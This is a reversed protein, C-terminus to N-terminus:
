TTTVSAKSRPSSPSRETTATTSPIRPDEGVWLVLGSVRTGAARLAHMSEALGSLTTHGLRACLLVDPAPLMSRSGERVHSLPANLVMVDYRRAMRGLDRRIREASEDDSFGATGKRGGPVLDISLDRAIVIPELAEPWGAKRQIIDALGPVPPADFIAALPSRVLDGDVLLTGRGERGAAAAINSAVVAHIDPDDGTVTVMALAAKSGALYLYLRRYSEATPDILSPSATADADRSDSYARTVVAIVRVGAVKEAEQSSAVTPRYIERGLTAGFGVFAGLVLSAALMAIPPATMTALERAKAAASDARLHVLRLAALKEEVDSLDDAVSDRAVEKFRTLISPTLTDRQPQMQRLAALEERLQNRQQYAIDSISRGINAARTTLALFIPDVGGAAGFDQRERELTALTDLLAAIRPKGHLLPSEALARYSAPLPANEVRLLLRNIAALAASLSDRRARLEPSLTDRTADRAAALSDRAIAVARTALAVENRLLAANRSVALTDPRPQLLVRPRNARRVQRPVIVLTVIAIVFAMCGVLLTALPARLANSVRANIWATGESRGSDTAVGIRM